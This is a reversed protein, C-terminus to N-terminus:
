SYISVAVTKGLQVRASLDPILAASVTHVDSNRLEWRAVIYGVLEYFFTKVGERTRWWSNPDYAPDPAAVV